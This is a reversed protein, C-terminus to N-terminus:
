SAPPLSACTEHVIPLTLPTEPSLFVGPASFRERHAPPSGPEYRRLLLLRRPDLRIEAGAPVSIASQNGGLVTSGTSQPDSGVKVRSPEFNFPASNPRNDIRTIEILYYNFNVRNEAPEGTATHCTERHHYYAAHLPELPGPPMCAGLSLVVACLLASSIRLSFNRM